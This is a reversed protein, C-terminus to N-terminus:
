GLLFPVHSYNRKLFLYIFKDFGAVETRCDTPPQQGFQLATNRPSARSLWCTQGQVLAMAIAAGDRKKSFFYAFNNTMPGGVGKEQECRSEVETIAVFKGEGALM